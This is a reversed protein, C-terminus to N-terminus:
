VWICMLLIKLITEIETFIIFYL